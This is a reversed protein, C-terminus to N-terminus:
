GRRAATRASPAAYEVERVNCVLGDEMDAAFFKLTYAGGDGYALAAATREGTAAYFAAPPVLVRCFPGLFGGLDAARDKLAGCLYNEPSAGFLVSEFFAFHKVEPRVPRTEVTRGSARAFRAGDYSYSCEAVVGACTPFAHTVGLMDGLSYSRVASQFALSGDEALLALANQSYVCLVDRGGVRGEAMHASCYEGGMRKLWVQGDAREMILEVEGRRYLTALGGAYRRQCVLSLEGGRREFRVVHIMAFNVGCYVEVLPPPSSLFSPTLFFALPYFPGEPVVECFSGEEVELIAAFPGVPGMYAGDLKLAATAASSFYVTMNNYFTYRPCKIDIFM